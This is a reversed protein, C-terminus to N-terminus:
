DRIFLMIPWAILIIALYEAPKHWLFGAAISLSLGILFYAVFALAGWLFIQILSYVIRM